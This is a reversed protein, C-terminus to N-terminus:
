SYRKKLWRSITSPDIKLRRNARLWAQIESLSAGNEHLTRIEFAHIDLKSKRTKRVRRAVKKRARIEQLDELLKSLSTSESM